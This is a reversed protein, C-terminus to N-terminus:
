PQNLNFHIKCVQAIDEDMLPKGKFVKLSFSVIELVFAVTGISAILFLFVLTVTRPPGFVLGSDTLLMDRAWLWDFIISFLGYGILGCYVCFLICPRNALKTVCPTDEDDEEIEMNNGDMDYSKQTMNVSTYMDVYVSLTHTPQYCIFLHSYLVTIKVVFVRSYM